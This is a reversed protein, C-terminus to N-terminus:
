LMSQTVDTTQKNGETNKATNQITTDFLYNLIFFAENMRTKRWVRVALVTLPFATDHIFKTKLKERMM